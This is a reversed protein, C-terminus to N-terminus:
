WVHYILYFGFSMLGFGALKGFIAVQNPKLKERIVKALVVKLLDTIVITLMISGLFTLAQEQTIKRAIVYTSIVGIWFIFTFPNVTNVLFGKLWFGAYHLGTFKKPKSDLDVKVFFSFIGFVILVVGGSVGFWFEFAKSEVVNSLARIFFYSGSIILIDSTWVGLAVTAGAKFGKEIATQTLAIFIPGLLITLTLGFLIGELFFSM